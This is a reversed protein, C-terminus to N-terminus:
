FTISHLKSSNIPFLTCMKVSVSMAREHMCACVRARVCKEMYLDATKTSFIFCFSEKLKPMLTASGQPSCSWM